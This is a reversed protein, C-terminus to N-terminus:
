KPTPPIWKAPKEGCVRPHDRYIGRFKCTRRSKGAYAPTIGTTRSNISPQRVKGRMRPPSGLFAWPTVLVAPKEGCVRPHDGQDTHRMAEPMRKGAYAPTIGLTTATMIVFGGKGRMRPPSGFRPASPILKWFKEGCVRPHDESCSMSHAQEARKGAYAPTIGLVCFLPCICLVKGRMRPPSGEIMGKDIHDSCKEGCVRPHDRNRRGALCFLTRKGAYAPTIGASCCQRRSDTEKGRMRPPSGLRPRRPAKREPKEGCVRPHDQSNLKVCSSGTAKGRM